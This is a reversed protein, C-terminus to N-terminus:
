AHRDALAARAADTALSTPLDRGTWLRFAGAAQGVLMALGDLVTAGAQEADRVFRTPRPGYVLDYAVQGVRFADPACPSVDADDMGLPTANVVLAAGPVDAADLSVARLEVADSGVALDSVVGDAQEVRRAAVDVRALGFRDRLALAAARAAGGAGLVVARGSALPAGLARLPVAFGELDTNHGSWGTPTRVLTNVAGTARATPGLTEALEFAAEKHPVTVNAGRAGLAHLGALADAFRDASVASALYVLDLGLAAFGANHIAPSVSHGVRDGLLVVLGTSASPTM